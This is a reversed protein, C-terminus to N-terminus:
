LDDFLSDRENKSRCHICLSAYPKAELREIQINKGCNTCIGFQGTEIRHLAEDVEVQKNRLHRAWRLQENKEIDQTANDLVDPEPDTSLQFSKLEKELRYQLSDREALLILKFRHIDLDTRM